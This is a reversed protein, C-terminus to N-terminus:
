LKLQTTTNTVESLFTTVPKEGINLTLNIPIYINKYNDDNEIRIRAKGKVTIKKTNLMAQLIKYGINYKLSFLLEGDPSVNKNGTVTLITDFVYDRVDFIRLSDETGVNEAGQLFYSLDKYNAFFGEVLDFGTNAKLKVFEPTLESLIKADALNFNNNKKYVLNLYTSLYQLHDNTTFYDNVYKIVKSRYLDYKDNELLRGIETIITKYLNNDTKKIEAYKLKYYIRKDAETENNNNVSKGLLNLINNLYYNVYSFNTNDLIFNFIDVEYFLIKSVAWINNPTEIIFSDPPSIFSNIETDLITNDIVTLAECLIQDKYLTNTATNGSIISNDLGLVIDTFDVTSIKWTSTDTNRVKFDIINNSYGTYTKNIVPITITNQKLCFFTINKGYVTNVYDNYRLLLEGTGGLYTDSNNITLNFINLNTNNADIKHYIDRNLNNISFRFPNLPTPTPQPLLGDVPKINTVNFKEFYQDFAFEYLDINTRVLDFTNTTYDFESIIYTKNIYDLSYKLYVSEPKFTTSKQFWKKNKDDSSPILAIKRGNLADWFSFRVYLDTYDSKNLFFLSYGDCGNTLNFCPREVLFNYGSPKENLNYRPNIYVPISLLRKQKINNPTDFIEMLMLSNYFYPKNKFLLSNTNWDGYKDWYPITFSNYFIPIGPKVPKKLNTQLTENFVVMGSDKLVDTNPKNLDGDQAPARLLNDQRIDLFSNYAVDPQTGDANLLGLEMKTNTYHDVFGSEIYPLIKSYDETQFYRLFFLNFNIAKAREPKFEVVDTDVINNIVGNKTINLLKKNYEDRDSSHDESIIFNNIIIDNNKFPLTLM